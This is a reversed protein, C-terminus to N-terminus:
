FKNLTIKRYFHERNFWTMQRKAYQRHSIIVLEIAQQLTIENNLYRAAERFGMVELAWHGVPLYRQLFSTEELLGSSFMTKVRAEISFLLKTRDMTFLLWHAKRITTQKFSRRLVSPKENTVLFIELARIIRQADHPLISDASEKDIFSLREYLAGVGKNTCEQELKQRIAEDKKPVDNLGYALARLYLGTGGVIFPRKGRSQVDHIAKEAFAVFTGADMKEHLPDLMLYGHHPVSAMELISPAAVGVAMHKYFQRSDACIIEGNFRKAWEFVIRSKGIGTPGAVIVPALDSRVM